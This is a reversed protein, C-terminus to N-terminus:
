VGTLLVPPAKPRDQKLIVTGPGHMQIISGNATSALREGQLISSFDGLYPTIHDSAGSDILWHDKYFPLEQPSRHDAVCVRSYYYDDFDYEDDYVNSPFLDEDHPRQSNPIQTSDVGGKWTGDIERRSDGYFSSKPRRPKKKSQAGIRFSSLTPAPV